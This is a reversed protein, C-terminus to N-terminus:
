RTILVDEYHSRNFVTIHGKAPAHPHIRWLFDHSKEVETPQKFSAVASGNPNFSRFLQKIMGDKGGTDMAQLVILVSRESEIYLREQLDDLIPELRELESKGDSKSVGGTDDPDIDALRVPTGPAALFSM